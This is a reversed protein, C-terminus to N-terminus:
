GAVESRRAPPASEAPQAAPATPTRWPELARKLPHLVLYEFTFMLLVAVAIWAMAAATDLNIRAV